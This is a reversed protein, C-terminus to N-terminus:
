EDEGLLPEAPTIGRGALAARVDNELTDLAIEVSMEEVHVRVRGDARAYPPLPADLPYEPEAPIEAAHLQALLERAVEPELWGLPVLGQAEFDVDAESALNAQMELIKARVDGAIIRRAEEARARDVLLVERSTNGFIHYQEHSGKELPSKTMAFIGRERLTELIIPLELPDFRGLSVTEPGPDHGTADSVPDRRRM